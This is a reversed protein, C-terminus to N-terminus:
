NSLIAIKYTWGKLKILPILISKQRYAVDNIRLDDDHDFINEDYWNQKKRRRKQSLYLRIIRHKM